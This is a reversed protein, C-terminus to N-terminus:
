GLQWYPRIGDHPWFRPEIELPEPIQQEVGSIDASPYARKYAHFLPVFREENFPEIQEYPWDRRYHSLFWRFAQELSGGTFAKYNSVDAGLSGAALSLNAWGQLNFACYHKTISRKMENPQRGAVDFHESVRTMARDLTKRVVVWNGLYHAVSLVQLDYFIGHNNQSACEKGGQESTLLWELYDAFWKDLGDKTRKGIVDAAGLLKVADLMYYLDKFEIIGSSSGEQDVGLKIQAYRLHPSMRTQKNVFWTRLLKAAHRAYRRDGVFYWALTLTTVDDFLYQARTRDYKDSEPEYLRTGPARLGDRFVYPLGDPTEPNPWWYPGPHLYDHPDGSPPLVTKDTVPSPGRALAAEADERLKTVVDVMRENGRDAAAKQVQLREVNLIIPMATDPPTGSNSIGPHVMPTSIGGRNKKAKGNTAELNRLLAGFRDISCHQSYDRGAKAAALYADKDRWLSAITDWVESPEAYIAASGYIEKFFPPLIAPRGAAMAEAVVTGSAEIWDAHPYHIFFDVDELFDSIPRVQWPEDPTM